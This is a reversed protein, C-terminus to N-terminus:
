PAPTNAARLDISLQVTATRESGLGGAAIFLRIFTPKESAPFIIDDFSGSVVPAPGVGETDESVDLYTEVVTGGFVPDDDDGFEIREILIMADGDSEVTALYDAKSFSWPAKAQYGFIFFYTALPDIETFSEDIRIEGNSPATELVFEDSPRWRWPWVGDLHLNAANVPLAAFDGVQTLSIYPRDSNAYPGCRVISASM